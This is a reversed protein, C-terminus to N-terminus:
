PLLVITPLLPNASFYSIPQSGYSECNARCIGTVPIRASRSVRITMSLGPLLTASVGSSNFSMRDDVIDGISSMSLSNVPVPSLSRFRNLVASGLDTLLSNVGDYRWLNAQHLMVPFVEGRLMNRVIFDAEREVIQAYTQNMTFFPPGGPGGIRAIGLPGFFHNYEDPQSGPAGPWATSTNYFINTPRRPIMLISSRHANPIASNHAFGPALSSADMVVQRIGKSAAASLFNPNNLGSVNPTVMSSLDEILGLSQGVSRNSNIETLSQSYTAPTCVGSNPVPNFCDLNEHDYTHSVWFFQSRNQTAAATLSDGPPAGGAATTGFGNYAMTVKIKGAQGSNMQDQWTRIANLDGGTIRLNPCQSAPDVTPDLQFGPPKCAALTSDFLDNGLFIDDVQPSFYVKRHGLFVGKTVWNVLGYGFALSHLLFPNNDFTLALYERGDGKRHTVGAIGGNITLIPTTTEGAGAVPLAAYVFSNSVPVPNARNLDPFVASSAPLFSATGGPLAVGTWTLGYRPDPFTYYSLIRVGYSAAYKDLALWGEAPLAISCPNTTCTALNGTTLIIGQYYGKLFNNLPPLKGGTQTLVVADYPVGIQGLITRIAAFSPETGDAALVLLKMDRSNTLLSVIGTLTRTM